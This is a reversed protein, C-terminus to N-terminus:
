HEGAVEPVPWVRIDQICTWSSSSYKDKKQFYDIIYLKNTELIKKPFSHVFKFNLKM